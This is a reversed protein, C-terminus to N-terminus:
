SRTLARVRTVFAAAAARLDVARYDVVHRAVGYLTQRQRCEVELYGALDGPRRLGAVVNREFAREPDDTVLIVRDAREALYATLPRWM